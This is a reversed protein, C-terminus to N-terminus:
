RRSSRAAIPATASSGSPHPRHARLFRVLSDKNAQAWGRRAAIVQFQFAAIAETSIASGAIVRTSRRDPRRAPRASRRRVRRAQPLRFAGAHRGAGEGPLRDRAPRQAGVAQADLDLDYRGAALARHAQGQPRRLDRDGSKAILSYIPNATEGAIAVADSGALVAQILYPTATQTVDLRGQDLAAVMKDTGGPIPVYDLKINERAFFGQQQAIFTYLSSVGRVTSPFRATASRSTKLRPTSAAAGVALLATALMISARRM